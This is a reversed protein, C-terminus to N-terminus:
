IADSFVAGLIFSNAPVKSPPRKKNASMEPIHPLLVSGKFKLVFAAYRELQICRKAPRFLPKAVRLALM